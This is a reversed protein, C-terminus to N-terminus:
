TRRTPTRSAATNTLRPTQGFLALSIADMLTSKGSGTPGLILFLPAGGLENELDVKQEGYLSNLNKTELQHLKM